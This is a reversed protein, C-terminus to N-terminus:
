LQKRSSSIVSRYINMLRKGIVDWSYHEVARQRAQASLQEWHEQNNLIQRVANALAGVDCPPVLIGVDPTIVDPIGGVNSGICPTGSALAEVLVVGQGEELSPLVFLQAQRMWESVQLPSQPGLFRVRQAIGLARALDVLIDKQSGEGIILLQHAPFDAAVQAWAQLLFNVGKREILSGVFLVCPQRLVAVPTFRRVDVGNPVVEIKGTSIGLQQTAHALSHSLALVRDCRRLTLQTLPRFVPMRAAQFIDSGQVTLVIPRRHIFQSAWAAAGSLTWNAHIVDCDRTYRAAASTHALFFPLIVARASKYKRWVIPLGGGDKQLVEFREPWFYRPRIIEIDDMIERTQAQPNHMAIVRVDAGQARLARAAELIFGGRDDERHRPFATTIICVKLTM